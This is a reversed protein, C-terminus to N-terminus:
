LLSYQKAYVSGNKCGDLFTDRKNKFFRHVPHFIAKFFLHFQCFLFPLWSYIIAACQYRTLALSLRFGRKGPKLVQFSRKNRLLAMCHISGSSASSANRKLYPAKSRQRREVYDPIPPTTDLNRHGTELTAPRGIHHWYEKRTVNTKGFEDVVSKEIIDIGEHM